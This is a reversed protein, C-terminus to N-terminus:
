SLIPDGDDDLEPAAVGTQNGEDDLVPM